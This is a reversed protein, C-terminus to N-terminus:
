HTLIARTSRRRRAFSARHLGSRALLFRNFAERPIDPGNGSPEFSRRAAPLCLGAVGASAKLFNRRSRNTM